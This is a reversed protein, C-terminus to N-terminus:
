QVQVEVLEASRVLGEVIRRSVSNEVKIRQNLAGDAMAKGAM